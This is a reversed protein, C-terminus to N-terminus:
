FPDKCLKILLIVIEKYNTNLFRSIQTILNISFCQKCRSIKEKLIPPNIKSPM